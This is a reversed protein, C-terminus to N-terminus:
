CVSTWPYGMFRYTPKILARLSICHKYRCTSYIKSLTFPTYHCIDLRLPSLVPKVQRSGVNDSSRLAHKWDYSTKPAIKQRRLIAHNIKSSQCLSLHAQLLGFILLFFLNEIKYTVTLQTYDGTKSLYCRCSHIEM